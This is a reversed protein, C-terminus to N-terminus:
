SHGIEESADLVNTWEKFFFIKSKGMTMIGKNKKYPYAQSRKRRRKKKVHMGPM